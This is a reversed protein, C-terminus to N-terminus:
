WSANRSEAMLTNFVCSDGPPTGIPGVEHLLQGLFPVHHHHPHRHPHRHLHRHHHRHHHHYRRNSVGMAVRVAFWVVGCPPPPVSLLALGRVVGCWVVPPAPSWASGFGSGCRVVPPTPPPFPYWGNPPPPPSPRVRIM